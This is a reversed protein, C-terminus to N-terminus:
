LKGAAERLVQAVFDSFRIVPGSRHWAAILMRNTQEDVDLTRQPFYWVAAKRKLDMRYWRSDLLVPTPRPAFFAAAANDHFFAQQQSESPALGAQDIWGVVDDFTEDRWVCVPYESGFLLRSWGIESVVHRAWDRVAAPPYAGQRCFIMLFRPHALLKRAASNGAIDSSSPAGAFHPAILKCQPYRELFDLLLQSIQTLVSGGCVFPMGGLSGITDLIQPHELVMSDMLRTGIFGSNLQAAISLKIQEINEGLPMGVSRFQEPHEVQAQSLTKLDPCTDATALIAQQVNHKQMVELMEPISLFRPLSVHAYADIIKM